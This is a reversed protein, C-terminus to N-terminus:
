TFFSSSSSSFHSSLAGAEAMDPIGFLFTKNETPRDPLSHLAGHLSMNWGPGNSERTVNKKPPVPFAPLPPADCKQHCDTDRASAVSAVPRLPPDRRQGLRYLRNCYVAYECPPSFFSFSNGQTTYCNGSFPVPCGAKRAKKSSKWLLKGKRRFTSGHYLFYECEDGLVQKRLHQKVFSQISDKLSHKRQFSFHHGWGALCINGQPHISWKQDSNRVFCTQFLTEGKAAPM